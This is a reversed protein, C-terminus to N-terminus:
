NVYHFGSNVKVFKVVAHHGEKLSLGSFQLFLLVQLDEALM